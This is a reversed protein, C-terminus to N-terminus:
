LIYHIMTLVDMLDDAEYRITTPAIQKVGPYFSAWRAKEHLKYTIEIDFHSPLPFLLDKKDKAVAKKVAERIRRVALDPQISVSGAGMGESVPVTEIGPLYTKMYSCVGQDGTVCLVPVGFYAAIMANLGAEPLLQGNCKVSMNKTNMTHSLPNYDTGAASHCGTLVAGSFSEDIGAMMSLPTRAWGRLIKAQEPLMSPDNYVLGDEHKVM